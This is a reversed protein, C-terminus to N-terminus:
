DDALIEFSFARQETEGEITGSLRLMGPFSIGGEVAEVTLVLRQITTTPISGGVTLEGAVIMTLPGTQFDVEGWDMSFSGSMFLGYFFGCSNWSNDVHTTLEQLDPTVSSTGCPFEHTHEGRQIELTEDILFALLGITGHYILRKVDAETLASPSEGPNPLSNIHMGSTDFVRSPLSDDAVRTTEGDLTPAFSRLGLDATYLDLESPFPGGGSQMVIDDVRFDSIAVAAAGDTRMTLEGSWVLASECVPPTGFRCFRERSPALGPGAWQVEGNGDLVTGDGIDCGSFTAHRGTDTNYFNFVGRRACPLFNDLFSAGQDAVAAALMTVGLRVARQEDPTLEAFTKDTEHDNHPGTGAGDGCAGALVLLAFSLPLHHKRSRM